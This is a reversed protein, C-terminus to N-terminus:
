LSGPLCKPLCWTKAVGCVGTTDVTEPSKKTSKQYVHVGTVPPFLCNRLPLLQRDQSACDVFLTGKWDQVLWSLPSPERTKNRSLHCCFYVGSSVLCSFRGGTGHEIGAPPLGAEWRPGFGSKKSALSFRNQVGLLFSHTRRWSRRTLRFSGHDGKRRQRQTPWTSFTGASGTVRRLTPSVLHPPRMSEKPSTAINSRQEFDPLLADHKRGAKCERTPAPM